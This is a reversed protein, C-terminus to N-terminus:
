AAFRLWLRVAVRVARDLRTLIKASIPGLILVHHLEPLLYQCLVVLRQQPKLPARGIMDLYEKLTSCLPKGEVGRVSFSLGLYKWTGETTAVPIDVNGIYFKTDMINIKKEKGAPEM